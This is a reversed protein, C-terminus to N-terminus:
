GDLWRLAALSAQRSCSLLGSRQIEFPRMLPCHVAPEAVSVNSTMLASGGERKEPLFQHHLSPVSGPFPFVRPVRGSMPTSSTLTATLCAESAKLLQLFVVSYSLAAIKFLINAYTKEKRKGKKEGLQLQGKRKKV